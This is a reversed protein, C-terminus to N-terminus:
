SVARLDCSRPGNKKDGDCFWTFGNLKTTMNPGVVFLLHPSPQNRMLMYEGKKPHTIKYAYCIGDTETLSEVTCGELPDKKKGQKM